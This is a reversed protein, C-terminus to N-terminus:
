LLGLGRYLGRLRELEADSAAGYPSRRWRPAIGFVELTAHWLGDAGGPFAAAEDWWPEDYRFIIEKARAMDGQQIAAWYVRDIQPAFIIFNSLWGVSGYPWLM